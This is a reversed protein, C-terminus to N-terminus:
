GRTGPNGCRGGQGSKRNKSRRCHCRTAGSKLTALGQTGSQPETWASRELAKEAGKRVERLKRGARGGACVHEQM